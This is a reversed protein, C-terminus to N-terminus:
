NEGSEMDLVIDIISLATKKRLVQKWGCLLFYIVKFNRSQHTLHFRLSINSSNKHYSRNKYPFSVLPYKQTRYVKVENASHRKLCVFIHLM